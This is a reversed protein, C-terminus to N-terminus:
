VPVSDQLYRYMTKRFKAPIRSDMHKYIREYRFKSIKPLKEGFFSIKLYSQHVEPTIQLPVVTRFVSVLFLVDKAHERNFLMLGITRILIRQGTAAPSQPCGVKGIAAVPV